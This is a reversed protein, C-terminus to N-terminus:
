RLNAFAAYLERAVEIGRPVYDLLLRENPSHINSEPLGIGTLIAPIGRDALAPFIPLTGGVRVFLPRRGFVREFPEAALQVARSTASVLGPPTSSEQQLELEAGAPTAEHILRQAAAGVTDPDQGPALRITFKAEAVVPLTTNRLGPKGGLIGNVDVSTEATTRLWFEEAAREDYPRAGQEGLMEDGAKLEAWSAREEPTLPAIGERLPDPARGNRPLIADLAHILAHTANLAANGYMGSHLDRAGTRVRVDYAVLGRTATCFIPVDRREMGGDFVLAVDAGREDASVFDVISDGGIEEEGDCAVRVNVPLTREAALEAAAKLLVYLQGKDDAVGRAVLWEGEVTPEFPPSDWLDLPAPPQVDFHGYVLVTAADEPRTSAPIEGVVLPQQKTEVLDAQGGAARVFDSVWEAARAVDGAHAVDASVSPIRLFESLEALWAEAM